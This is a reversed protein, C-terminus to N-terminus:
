DTLPDTADTTRGDLGEEIVEYNSGLLNKLIGAWRDNADYRSSPPNPQPIWGYTNSDGYLVIRFPAAWLSGSVVLSLALTCLIKMMFSSQSSRASDKPEV